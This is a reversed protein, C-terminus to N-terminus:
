LEIQEAERRMEDADDDLLWGDSALEDLRNKFRGLYGAKDGYLARLAESDFPEDSGVTVYSPRGDALLPNPRYTSHPVDLQVCRVGGLTNGHEDTAFYGDPGVELREARPPVTGDAVWRVLHDLTMAFLEFHPLSNM